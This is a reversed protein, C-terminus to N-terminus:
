YECDEERFDMPAEESAADEPCEDEFYLQEENEVCQHLIAHDIMAGIVTCGSLMSAALLLGAISLTKLTTM